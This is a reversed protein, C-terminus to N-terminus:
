VAIVNGKELADEIDSLRYYITGKAVTVEEGDPDFYSKTDFKYPKLIRRNRLSRIVNKGYRQNAENQTVLVKESLRRQESRMTQIVLGVIEEKTPVQILHVAIQLRSIQDLIEKSLKELTMITLKLKPLAAPISGSIDVLQIYCGKAQVRVCM